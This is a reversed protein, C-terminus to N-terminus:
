ELDVGQFWIVDHLCFKCWRVVQLGKSWIQHSCTGREAVTVTFSRMKCDSISLRSTQHLDIAKNSRRSQCAVRWDFLPLTSFGLDWMEQPFIPSLKEPCGTYETHRYIYVACIYIYICSDYIYMHVRCTCAPLARFRARLFPCPFFIM